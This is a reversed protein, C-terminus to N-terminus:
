QAEACIQRINNYRRLVDDKEPDHKALQAQGYLTTYKFDRIMEPTIPMGINDQFWKYFHGGHDFHFQNHYDAAHLATEECSFDTGIEGCYQLTTNICERIQRADWRDIVDKRNLLKVNLPSLDSYSKHILGHIEEPTFEAETLCLAANKNNAVDLQSVGFSLGSKGGANSFKYVLSLKGELENAILCRAFKVKMDENLATIKM